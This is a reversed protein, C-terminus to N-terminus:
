GLDAVQILDRDRHAVSEQVLLARPLLDLEGFPLEMLADVPQPLAGADLVLWSTSLSGAAILRREVSVMSERVAACVNVCIAACRSSRPSFAKLIRAYRPAALLRTPSPTSSRAGSKSDPSSAARRPNPGAVSATTRSRTSVPSDRYRSCSRSDAGSPSSSMSSTGPM